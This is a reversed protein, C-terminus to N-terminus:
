EDKIVVAGSAYLAKAAPIISVDKFLPDFVMIDALAAIRANRDADNGRATLELFKAHIEHMPYVWPFSNDCGSDRWRVKHVWSGHTVGPPAEDVVRALNELDSIASNGGM